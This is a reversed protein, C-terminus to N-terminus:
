RDMCGIGSTTHISSGCIRDFVPNPKEGLFETGKNVCVDTPIKDPPNGAMGEGNEQNGGEGQVTVIGQMWPHVMCFYPFEGEEDFTYSFTAGAMFLSSDFVGTPGDAASGATVTHAASDDNSWTVEGGVDVTVEYPMFCENTEECGPVSTGQPAIVSASVHDIFILNPTADGAMQVRTITSSLDYDGSIKSPGPLSRGDKWNAHGWALFEVNTTDKFSVLPDLDLDIIDCGAEPFYNLQTPTGFDHQADTATTEFIGGGSNSYVVMPEGAYLGMSQTGDLAQNLDNIVRNSLKVNRDVYDSTQRTFSMVSIYNPKCNVEDEGGHDIGLNHGIEHLLTGAQTDPSGVSGDWSGLTIMVDNGPFESYGSVGIHQNRDHAFLAYHFAQNKLNRQEATWTSPFIAGEREIETCNKRRCRSNGYITPFM